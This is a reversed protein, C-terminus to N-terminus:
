FPVFFRIIFLAGGLIMGAICGAVAGSAVPVGRNEFLKAGGVRFTIMKLVWAVLFPAWLGFLASSATTGILWGIPELPFWVFRAHLFSLVAIWAMGLLMYPIWPDQAPLSTWWSPYNEYREGIGEYWSKWIGLKSAGVAHTLTLFGSFSFLPAVIMVLLVVRFVDRPHIGFLKGMKYGSFSSFFAGGWGETAFNCGSTTAFKYMIYQQTTVPTDPTPHAIRFLMLGKDSSVWYTGALGFIRTQGYWILFASIPLLLADLLALSASMWFIVMFIFSGFLLAYATRYSIAEDRESEKLSGGGMAARVTDVIYRRNLVLNMVGLVLIGGGAIAMFKLPPDTQPSPHCWYRGCGGESEIGTYYGMAYSIQVAIMYFLAFFWTSFLVAMPALYAIAVVVPNYNIMMIGPIAALADGSVFYRTVHPCSNVKIGYIDPFWPFIATLTIPIQFALGVLVGILVWRRRSSGEASPKVNQVLERMILTQPFPVQEIDIWQRRLVTALALFFLGQGFTVTWWWAIPVIWAGLNIPGGTAMVRCVSAPPAMFWPVIKASLAEETYRSAWIYSTGLAWPYLITYSVPLSAIYAYALNSAKMKEKLPGVRGILAGIALVLFPLVTLGMNCVAEGLSNITWYPFSSILLQWMPGFFSAIIAMLLIPIIPAGKAKVEETAM